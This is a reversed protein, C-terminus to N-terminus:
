GQPFVGLFGMFVVAGGGAHGGGGEDPVLEGLRQGVPCLEGAGLRVASQVLRLEIGLQVGQARHRSAAWKWAWRASSMAVATRSDLSNPSSQAMTWPVSPCRMASKRALSPMGTMVPGKRVSRELGSSALRVRSFVAMRARAPTCVAMQVSWGSVGMARSGKQAAMAALAPISSSSARAAMVTLAAQMQPAPSRSPEREGPLSASITTM